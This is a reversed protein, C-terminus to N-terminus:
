FDGSFLQYTISWLFMFMKSILCVQSWAYGPISPVVVNFVYKKDKEPEHLKKTLAYFERISGPWGHLLLVPYHIKEKIVDEYSMLHMFHM